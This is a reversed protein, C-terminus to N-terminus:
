RKRSKTAPKMQYEMWGQDEQTKAIRIQLDPMRTAFLSGSTVFRSALRSSEIIAHVTQYPVPSVTVVPIQALVSQVAQATQQDSLNSPFQVQHVPSFLAESEDADRLLKLPSFPRRVELDEAVDLWIKWMLSEVNSNSEAIPLGLGEAESRSVPYGHHFFDKTLTEAITRAKQRESEGTMHLRLLREGMSVSLQASRAAVGIPIAGVADSFRGFAAALHSQDTLGVEERAFQMFAILDESGFQVSGSTGDPPSPIPATVQPDTPGLNGNPHMVIKNAGLAILTAASYAAQPVLVNFKEVRERILSVIRWAVTPDGGNSVILLDLSQASSPLAELQLHIEGIADSSMVGQAGNRDSTIYVILPQEREEELESYLRKREAIGM